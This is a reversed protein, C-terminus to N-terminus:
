VNGLVQERWFQEMRQLAEQLQGEEQVLAIRVWGEGQEGFADGPTTVVGQSLLLQKAFRRATWGAPVPAWVFMTGETPPVEWGFRRLGDVFLRSRQEYLAAVPQPAQMDEELAVVAAEQVALFVGYDVNAKLARLAGIIQENGVVFGIRCGAMNFSKSFSHFEVAVDRAGQVSLISPQEYGSFMMESYAFDHALAIEHAHAFDVAQQLTARTATVPLPNGPYNLTMLRARARVEAPVAAFDPQFRNAAQLPLPYAEVGALALSARYIPYGPDPVLAVDGEDTLALALHALGDQTGMLVLVEKDANLEVGFKHAFWRCIMQRLAPTGASQPYRYMHPNRVAQALADMVAESPGGDPSGIGLEILQLGAAQAEAKWQELEAFIASGM